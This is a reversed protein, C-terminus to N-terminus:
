KLIEERELVSKDLKILITTRSPFQQTPTHHATVRAPLGLGDLVAEVVGATFSSCSLQNMDKPVSIHREIPPDNDIIMYEDENEVSKEIADAPRGFVARWVQTHISMLAPLFRIERKPAKSSSEARWVMLELVRTGARYGLTNLRRELDNIGSVRKQTYQVVESFLFAFASASVESTRTKNLNRDYINPRLGPKPTGLATNISTASPLSFRTSSATPSLHEASSLSSGSLVSFRPHPQQM